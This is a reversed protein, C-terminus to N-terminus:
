FKKTIYKKEYFFTTKWVHTIIKNQIRYFFFGLVGSVYKLYISNFITVYM